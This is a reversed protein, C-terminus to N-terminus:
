RPSSPPSSRALSVPQRRKYVGFLGLSLFGTSMLLLSSPEPTVNLQGDPKGIPNKDFGNLIDTQDTSCQSKTGCDAGVGVAITFLYSTDCNIDDQNLGGTDGDNDCDGKNPATPLDGGTFDVIYYNSNGPDPGCTPTNKFININGPVLGCGATDQKGGLDFVPILLQLSTLPAGTLNLGTFCGLYLSTSLGDLQDANCASLTVTFNDSTIDHVELYNPVNTPPPDIVVMQFDDARAVGSLGSILALAFLYRLINKM